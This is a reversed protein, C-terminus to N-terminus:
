EAFAEPLFRTTVGGDTVNEDTAGNVLRAIIFVHCTTPFTFGYFILDSFAFGFGFIGIFLLRAPAFDFLFGLSLSNEKDAVPRYRSQFRCAIRPITREQLARQIM